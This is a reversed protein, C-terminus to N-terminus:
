KAIAHLQRNTGLKLVVLISANFDLGIGHSPANDQNKFPQFDVQTSALVNEDYAFKYFLKASGKINYDLRGSVQRSKLEDANM